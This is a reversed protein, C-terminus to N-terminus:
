FAFFIIGQDNHWVVLQRQGNPAFPLIDTQGGVQGIAVEINQGFTLQPFLFHFHLLSSLFFYAIGLAHTRFQPTTQNAPAQIVAVQEKTQLFLPLPRDPNTRRKRTTGTQIKAHMWTTQFPQLFSPEQLFTPTLNGIIQDPYQTGVEPLSQGRILM